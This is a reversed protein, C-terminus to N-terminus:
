HQELRMEQHELHMQAQMETINNAMQQQLQMQASVVPNTRAPPPNMEPQPKNIIRRCRNNAPLYIGGGKRTNAM